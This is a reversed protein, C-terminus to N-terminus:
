NIEEYRLWLNIRALIIGKRDAFTMIRKDSIGSQRIQIETIGLDHTPYNIDERCFLEGNLKIRQEIKIEM